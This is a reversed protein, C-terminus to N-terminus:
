GQQNAHNSIWDTITTQTVGAIGANAAHNQLGNAMVVTMFQNLHIPGMPITDNTVNENNELWTRKDGSGCGWASIDLSRDNLYVYKEDYTYPFPTQHYMSTDWSQYSVTNLPIRVAQNIGNYLFLACVKREALKHYKTIYGCTSQLRYGRKVGNIGARLIHSIVNITHQKNKNSDDVELCKKLSALMEKDGLETFTKQFTDNGDTHMTNCYGRVNINPATLLLLSNYRASPVNNCQKQMGDDDCLSFIKQYFRDLIPDSLKAVRNADATLKQVIYEELPIFLPNSVENEKWRCSSYRNLYGKRPTSIPRDSQVCGFFKCTGDSDLVKRVDKRNSPATGYINDLMYHILDMNPRAYGDPGKCWQAAIKGFRMYPEKASKDISGIDKSSSTEEFVIGERPINSVHITDVRVACSLVFRNFEKGDLKGDAGDSNDGKKKLKKYDPISIYAILVHSEPPPQIGLPLSSYDKPWLAVAMHKEIYMDKTPEAVYRTQRKNNALTKGSVFEHTCDDFAKPIETDQLSKKQQIISIIPPQYKMVREIHKIHNDSLNRHMDPGNINCEVKNDHKCLRDNTIRNIYRVILKDQLGALPGEYLDSPSNEIQMMDMMSVEIVKDSVVFCGNIDYRAHSYLISYPHIHLLVILQWTEGDDLSIVCVPRGIKKAEKVNDINNLERYCNHLNTCDIFAYSAVEMSSDNSAMAIPQHCENISMRKKIVKSSCIGTLPCTQQFLYAKGTVTVSVNQTLSPIQQTSSSMLTEPPILRPSIRRVVSTAGLRRKTRQGIMMSM